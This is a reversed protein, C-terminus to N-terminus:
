RFGNYNTHPSKQRDDLSAAAGPDECPHECTRELYTDKEPAAIPGRQLPRNHATGVDDSPWLCDVARTGYDAVRCQGKKCSCLCCSADPLFMHTAPVIRLPFGPGSYRLILASWTNDIFFEVRVQHLGATLHVHAHARRTRADQGANFDNSVALRGGIWLKAGERNELDFTFTNAKDVLLQGTIRAAWQATYTRGDYRGFGQPPTANMAYVEPWAGFRSPQYVNPLWTILDPARGDLNPISWLKSYYKYLALQLGPRLPAM